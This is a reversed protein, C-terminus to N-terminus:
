FGAFLQEELFILVVDAEPEPEAEWESEYDGSETEYSEYEESKEREDLRYAREPKVDKEDVDDEDPNESKDEVNNRPVRMNKQLYYAYMDSKLPFADATQDLKKISQVAAIIGDMFSAKTSAKKLKELNPLFKVQDDIQINDVWRLYKCVTFAEVQNAFGEIVKKTEEKQDRNLFKSVEKRGINARWGQFFLVNYLIPYNLFLEVYNYLESWFLNATFAISQKWRLHKILDIQKEESGLKQLLSYSQVVWRNRRISDIENPYFALPSKDFFLANYFIKFDKKLRKLNDIALQLGRLFTEASIKVRTVLRTYKIADTALAIDSEASILDRVQNKEQSVLFDRIEETFSQGNLTYMANYILPFDLFLEVDAQVANENEELSDIIIHVNHRTLIVIFEDVNEAMQNKLQEYRQIVDSELIPLPLMAIEDDDGADPRQKTFYYALQTDDLPMTMSYTVDGNTKDAAAFDWKGDKLTEIAKLLKEEYANSPFGTNLNWRVHKIVRVADVPPMEKLTQLTSEKFKANFFAKVEGMRDKGNLEQYFIADYFVRHQTFFEVTKEVDKLKESMNETTVRNRRLIRVFEEQNEVSFQKWLEVYQKYVPTELLKAVKNEENEKRKFNLEARKLINERFEIYPVEKGNSTVLFTEKLMDKEEALKFPYKNLIPQCMTQIRVLNGLSQRVKFSEGKLVLETEFINYVKDLDNDAQMTRKLKELTKKWKLSLSEDEDPAVTENYLLSALQTKREANITKRQKREIDFSSILLLEKLQEKIELIRNDLKEKKEVFYSSIRTEANQENFFKVVSDEETVNVRSDALEPYYFTMGAYIMQLASFGSNNTFYRQLSERGQELFLVFGNEMDSKAADLLAEANKKEKQVFARQAASRGKSARIELDRQAIVNLWYNVIRDKLNEEEFFDSVMSVNKLATELSFPVMRPYLTFLAAYPLIKLSMDQASVGYYQAIDYIKLAKRGEQIFLAFGNDMDSKAADMLAEAEEKAQELLNREVPDTGEYNSVELTRELIVNLWYTGIRSKLDQDKFFNSVLSEDKLAEEFSFPAINPYFTLFAAYLVMEPSHLDKPRVLINKGTDKLLKFNKKMDTTAVTERKVLETVELEIGIQEKYLDLVRKRFNVFKMNKLAPNPVFNTGREKSKINNKYLDLLFCIFRDLEMRSFNADRNEFRKRLTKTSAQIFLNDQIELVDKKFFDYQPLPRQLLYHMLAAQELHKVDHLTLYAKYKELLANHKDLFAKWPGITESEMAIYELFFNRLTLTEEDRRKRLREAQETRFLQVDSM